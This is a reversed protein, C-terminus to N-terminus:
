LWLRMVCGGFRSLEYGLLRWSVAGSFKPASPGGGLPMMVIDISSATESTGIDPLILENVILKFYDRRMAAATHHLITRANDDSWDHLVRRFYYARSGVAHPIMLKAITAFTM